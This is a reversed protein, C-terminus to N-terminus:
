ISPCALPALWHSRGRSRSARTLQTLSDSLLPQSHCIPSVVRKLSRQDILHFSDHIPIVLIHGNSLDVISFQSSLSFWLTDFIFENITLRTGL